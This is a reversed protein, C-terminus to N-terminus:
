VDPNGGQRGEEELLRKEILMRIKKGEALPIMRMVSHSGALMLSVSCVGYFRQLISQSLVCYQVAHYKIQSTRLIFFGGNIRVFETTIEYFCSRCYAPIIYLLLLLYGFLSVLGLLIAAFPWYVGIILLLLIVPAALLVSYLRWITEAHHSPNVRITDIMEVKQKM